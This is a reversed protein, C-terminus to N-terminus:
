HRKGNRWIGITTDIQNGSKTIELVKGHQMDNKFGGQYHLGVGKYRNGFGNYKGDKIEGLYLEKGNGEPDTSLFIGKGNPQGQDFSGFYYIGKTDDTIIGFSTIPAKAYPQVKAIVKDGYPDKGDATISLINSEKGRDQYRKKSLSELWGAQAAIIRYEPVPHTTSGLKKKLILPLVAEFFDFGVNTLMEVAEGALRDAELEKKYNFYENQNVNVGIDNADIHACEHALIFIYMAEWYSSSIYTHVGALSDFYAPNIIIFEARPNYQNQPARYSSAILGADEFTVQLTIKRKIEFFNKVKILLPYVPNTRKDIDVAIRTLQRIPIPDGTANCSRLSDDSALELSPPTHSAEYSLLNAAVLIFALSLPLILLPRM